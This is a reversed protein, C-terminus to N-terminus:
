VALFTYYLTLLLILAMGILTPAAAKWRQEKPFVMLRKYYTYSSIVGIPPLIWVMYSRFFLFGVVLIGMSAYSIYKYEDNPM